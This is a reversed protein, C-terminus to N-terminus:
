TAAGRRWRSFVEVGAIGLVILALAWLFVYGQVPLGLRGISLWAVLTGGGCVNIAIAGWLGLGGQVGLRELLLAVSVGVLVGGLIGPYFAREAPPIGLVAVLGRPFSLLLVGLVLNVAADVTLLLQDQKM